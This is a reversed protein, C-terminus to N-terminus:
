KRGIPVIGEPPDVLTWVQNAHMSNIESKMVEMWKESDVDLMAENYTKFDNRIDRDRVFFAKELDETLIALYRKPPHSVRSSKRPLPPIIDVPENNSESRQVQHEESVKEELKIKRGSSGDQIFEKKLFIAHRSVIM